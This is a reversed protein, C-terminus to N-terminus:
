EVNKLQKLREVEKELEANKSLLEQVKEELQGMREMKRARSRRAAETNRARKVSVSDGDETPVEIPTLPTSRPKRSYVTMGLSDKKENYVPPTDSKKRKTVKSAKPKTAKTATTTSSTDVIPSSSQSSAQSSPATIPLNNSFVPQEQNKIQQEEDIPEQKIQVVGSEEEPFLSEWTSSDGVEADDFLPSQEFGGFVDNSFLSQPSITSTDPTDLQQQYPSDDFMPAAAASVSFSTFNDFGFTSQEEEIQPTLPQTMTNTFKPAKTTSSMPAAFQGSVNTTTASMNIM